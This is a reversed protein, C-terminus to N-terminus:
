PQAGAALFVDLRWGAFDSMHPRTGNWTWYGDDHLTACPKQQKLKEIETLADDWGKEASVARLVAADLADLLHIVVMPNAAAIYAANNCSNEVDGDFNETDSVYVGVHPDPNGAVVFDGKPNWPHGVQYWPGPTADRAIERLRSNKM